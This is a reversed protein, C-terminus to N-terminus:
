VARPAGGARELLVHLPMSSLTELRLDAQELAMDRTMPNPVAVCFMGARKAAIVGNASDEIALCGEPRVELSEASALYLEPDPKVNAVDDRSKLSDFYELLERRTLHGEVWDRTSSSAVGVGLGLKRAQVLYEMVGPLLSSSDIIAMYRRRRRERIAERDIPRGTLEELHRYLDLTGVGGGIFRSWLSRDLEVSHSQFEDQWTAFDPTETDIIVGDFDFIVAEIM